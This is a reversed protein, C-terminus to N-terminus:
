HFVSKYIAGFIWSIAAIAWFGIFGIMAIKAILFRGRFGICFGCIGGFGSALYFLWMHEYHGRLVEDMYVNPIFLGVITCALIMGLTWLAVGVDTYNSQAAFKDVLAFAGSVAFIYGTFFISPPISSLFNGSVM